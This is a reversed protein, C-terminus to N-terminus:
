LYLVKIQTVNSNDDAFPKMRYMDINKDHPFHFVFRVESGSTAPQIGPQSLSEKRRKKQREGRICTLFSQNIVQITNLEMKLWIETLNRCGTCRDMSEQLEKLWYEARDEKSAVPQKRLLKQTAQNRLLWAGMTIMM